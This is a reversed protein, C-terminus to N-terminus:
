DGSFSLDWVILISYPLFFFFLPFHVYLVPESYKFQLKIAQLRSCGSRAREQAYIILSVCLIKRWEDAHHAADEVAGSQRRDQREGEHLARARSTLGRLLFSSSM